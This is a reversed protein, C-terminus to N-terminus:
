FTKRFDRNVSDNYGIAMELRRSRYESPSDRNSVVFFACMGGNQRLLWMSLHLYIVSRPM